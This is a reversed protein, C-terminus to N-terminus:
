DKPLTSQKLVDLEQQRTLVDQELEKLKVLHTRELWDAFQKLAESAYLLQREKSHLECLDQELAPDQFAEEAKMEVGCVDCTVTKKAM